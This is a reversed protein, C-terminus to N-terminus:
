KEATYNKLSIVKRWAIEDMAKLMELMKRTNLLLRDIHSITKVPAYYADYFFSTYM